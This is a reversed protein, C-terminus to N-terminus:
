ASASWVLFVRASEGLPFRIARAREATTPERGEDLWRRVPGYAATGWVECIIWCAIFMGIAGLLATTRAAAPAARGPLPVVFTIFVYTLTASLFNILPLAIRLQRFVRFGVAPQATGSSGAARPAHREGALPRLALPPSTPEAAM